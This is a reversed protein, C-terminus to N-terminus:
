MAMFVLLKGYVNVVGTRGLSLHIAQRVFERFLPTDPARVDPDSEHEVSHVM